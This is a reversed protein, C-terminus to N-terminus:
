VGSGGSVRSARWAARDSMRRRLEKLEGFDLVRNEAIVCCRFTGWRAQSLVNVGAADNSFAPLILRVKGVLFCPGGVGNSWRAVPHQHGQVLPERRLRADGHVIHWKGLWVGDPAVPLATDRNALGRDHNGPVVAVLEVGVDDLWTQLEDVLTKEPGAEFLDGAIVLRSVRLSSLPALVAAVTQRPVADGDRQRAEGYGLHVDAIVATATPLHVAARVPTLLWEELVLM